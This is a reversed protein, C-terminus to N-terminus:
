LLAPEKAQASDIEARGRMLRARERIGQLGIRDESVNSPDFGIGWDKIELHIWEGQQSLRIEAREARSHRQINNIAHQVIRFITAELLSDLRDFQVKSTFDIKLHNDQLGEILASIASVVGLEELIPPRLGGILRRAEDVAKSILTRAQAVKERTEGAPMGDSELLSNLLMQAATADQVLGDHIEYAILQRDREHFMLMDQLLVQEEHLKEAIRGRETVDLIIGAAGNLNGQDDHLPTHWIDLEMGRLHMSVIGTEASQIQPLISSAEPIIRSIDELSKGVLEQPKIGTSEVAQGCCITLTGHADIAYINIPSGIIIRTFLDDTGASLPGIRDNATATNTVERCTKKNKVIGSFGSHTKMPNTTM